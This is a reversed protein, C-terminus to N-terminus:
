ARANVAAIFDSRFKPQITDITPCFETVGNTNTYRDYLDWLRDALAAADEITACNDVIGRAQQALERGDATSARLAAAINEATIARYIDVLTKRKLGRPLYETERTIIKRLEAATKNTTINTKM